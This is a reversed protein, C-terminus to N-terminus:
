HNDHEVASRSIAITDCHLLKVVDINEMRVHHRARNERMDNGNVFSDLYLHLIATFGWM